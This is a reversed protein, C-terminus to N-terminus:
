TGVSVVLLDPSSQTSTPLFEYYFRAADCLIMAPLVTKEGLSDSLPNLLLWCLLHFVLDALALLILINTFLLFRERDKKKERPYPLSYRMYYLVAEYLTVITYMFLVLFPDKLLFTVFELFVIWGYFILVITYFTDHIM